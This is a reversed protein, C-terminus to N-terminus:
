GCLARWADLARRKRMVTLGAPAGAPCARGYEVALVAKGARVFPATSACERYRFCEEVLAWDFYPELAAAQGLDNKLAISLGRAHAARALFRNFRLQDAATLPFGTRNAYGDVNDAEVADFGKRACADMRRELLPRVARSRVDLWRERPWGSVRAGVIARPFRRADPRDPELTGADVYCVVRVGRAHLAAVTSAPTDFLDVDYVQAPVSLDLRGSLQWQWTMGPSPAWLALAAAVAAATM